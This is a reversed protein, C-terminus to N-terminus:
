VASRLAECEKEVAAIIDAQTNSKEVLSRVEENLTDIEKKLTQNQFMEKIRFDKQSRLADLTDRLRTETAELQTTKDRLCQNTEREVNALRDLEKSLAAREGELEGRIAANFALEESVKRCLWMRLDKGGFFTGDDIKVK